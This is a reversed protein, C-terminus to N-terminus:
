EGVAPVAQVARAPAMAASPSAGTGSGLVIAINITPVARKTPQRSRRSHIAYAQPRRQASPGQYQWIVGVFPM